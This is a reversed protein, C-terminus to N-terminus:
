PLGAIARAEGTLELIHMGTNARDVVYIYGRDDTEVNNSQIATKCREVGDIKMCRKDTARTISPIFYGIEKPQYPNRVDVARVGANFYAIFAVKKYFVPAMSENSSHAGFRGGRQCFNGSAEPVVFNSVVMPKAEITVDAFFVLQRAEQCENLIQEDVIMVFDRVKGDKDKVFEAVPMQPMPFVTHAGNFPLMDLRGVVPYRLNEPTPEKPGNLLKERDVIQLIGGKNTGYGFYVRNGQLGTSIPGHLETPVAGTSGPEQGVLGFDRIHVPKSPDSLDFVQTMRRVRWGEVGSVLYAIGTDCEWWSKHTDKLGQVITTVLTPKAPDTVDWMEHARGGFVRLMYAKSADAKPLTKGDCVRVMQAGGEEYEGPLGPIHALYRPQAPDSVDVISTGSYEPQGTLRNVPKPVDVTGGHHGVYAIYRDGQHHITPQYASRAQLDNYGVLRMNRAEPSDGVKSSQALAPLMLLMLGAGMSAALARTGYVFSSRMM